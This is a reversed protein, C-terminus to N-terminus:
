QAEELRRRLHTPSVGSVRSIRRLSIDEKRAQTIVEWITDDLMMRLSSLVAIHTLLDHGDDKGNSTAM